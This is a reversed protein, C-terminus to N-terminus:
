RRVGADDEATAALIEVMTTNGSVTSVFFKEPVGRVQREGVQTVAGAKALIKIHYSINNALVDIKSSLQKASSPEESRHLM